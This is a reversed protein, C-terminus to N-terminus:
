YENDYEKIQILDYSFEDQHGVFSEIERRTKEVDNTQIRFTIIDGANIVKDGSNDMKFHDKDKRKVSIILANAPLLLDRTPLGVVFAENSVLFQSEILYFDRRAYKQHIKRELVIDYVHTANIIKFVTYAMTVSLIVPLVNDVSQLGEVAFVIASLPCGITSGM